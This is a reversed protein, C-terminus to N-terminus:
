FIVNLDGQRLWRRILGHGHCSNLFIEKTRLFSAKTSTDLRETEIPAYQIDGITAEIDANPEEIDAVYGSKDYKQM